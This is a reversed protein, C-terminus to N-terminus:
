EDQTSGSRRQQRQQKMDTYKTQQEPTLLAMVEKEKTSRITAIDADKQEQTKNVDANVADIENFMAVYIAELSTQQEATLALLKNMKVVKVKAKEQNPTVTTAEAQQASAFGATLVFAFLVLIRKM